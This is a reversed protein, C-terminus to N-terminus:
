SIYYTWTHNMVLFINFGKYMDSLFSWIKLTYLEQSIEGEVTTWNPIYRHGAELLYSLTRPFKHSIQQVLTEPLEMM